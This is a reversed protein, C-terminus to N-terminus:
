RVYFRRNDRIIDMVDKESKEIRNKIYDKEDRDLEPYMDILSFMEGHDMIKKLNIKKMAKMLAAIKEEEEFIIKKDKPVHGEPVFSYGSDFLPAFGTIKLTNVDRIFGFNGLHRDENGLIRDVAIMNDIYEKADHLGCLACMRLLHKYVTEDARRKERFYIYGAPVFETDKTVFNKCKSCLRMGEVTLEYEVYPIIDLKRLLITALVESIPEQRLRRSGAKILFSEGTEGMTWRKRLLGNTTLDPSPAFTHDKELEWPYFFLRGIDESYPNTFYNLADWTQSKEYRFWYQDSLSFMCGYREFEPYGEFFSYNKIVSGMGERDPPLRRKEIWENLSSETFNDHLIIPLHPMDIRECIKTVVGKEIEVQAVPTKKNYMVARM